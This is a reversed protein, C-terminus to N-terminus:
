MSAHTTHQLQDAADQDNATMAPKLCNELVLSWALKDEEEETM